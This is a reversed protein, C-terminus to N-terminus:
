PIHVRITTRFMPGLTIAYFSNPSAVGAYIFWCYEVRCFGVVWSLFVLYGSVRVGGLVWRSVFLLCYFHGEGVQFGGVERDLGVGACSRRRTSHAM